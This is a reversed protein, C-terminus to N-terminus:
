FLKSFLEMLSQRVVFESGKSLKSTRCRWTEYGGREMEAEPPVYGVNDNALSIFFCNRGALRSRLDIGTQAFFEGPLAGIYLDGIRLAQLPALCIEDEKELQLQELAYITSINKQNIEVINSCPNAAITSRAAKLEEGSPMRLSLEVLRNEFRLVETQYWPLQRIKEALQRALSEGILKSKSFQQLPYRDPFLFDWININGSTGNSMMAVFDDGAGLENKLAKSFQGFYDASVIGHPFDGVYHLSYNALIGLWDGELSRVGMFSLIPDECGSREFIFRENGFPNTVVKDTGAGFPDFIQFQPDMEYRRCVVHEPIEIAGHTIECPQLRAIALKVVEVISKSLKQAYEEDVPSLFIGTLSGGSHIHTAAILVQTNKLGTTYELEEYVPALFAQTMSCTDVMVLIFCKKEVEFAVAKAYLPDHIEKVRYPIFDGNMITGLAPTIDLAAFGALLM